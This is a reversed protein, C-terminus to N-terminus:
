KNICGSFSTNFDERQEASLLNLTNIGADRFAAKVPVVEAMLADEAAVVEAQVVPHKMWAAKLAEMNAELADEHQDLVLKAEDMFGNATDKQQDSPKAAKWAKTLCKHMKSFGPAKPNALASYDVSQAFAAPTILLAGLVLAIKKM